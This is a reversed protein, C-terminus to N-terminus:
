RYRIEQINHAAAEWDGAKGWKVLKNEHFYLWYVEGVYYPDLASSFQTREVIYEWVEVVQGSDSTMSGRLIDPSGIRDLVQGKDMGVSITMLGKPKLRRTMFTRM